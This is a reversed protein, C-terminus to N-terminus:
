AKPTRVEIGIRTIEPHEKRLREELREITRAIENATLGRKFQIDVNVLVEDPGLVMTLPRDVKEVGPEARALQQVARSIDPDSEGVLLSRTEYALFLAVTALVGGILISAIGDYVTNGTIDTLLVGFFAIVLGTMAASDEAIVTYLGPDTSERLAQWFPTRGKQKWLKRLAFALSTGEFLFAAGLVVYAWFASQLAVPHMLHTVGEYVSMGGGFGFLVIAVILGWFYYERGHGYPHKEDPPRSSLHKGLLLLLQDATDITSHIAESLLSSSSTMVAIIFKTITIALNAAIAVYVVVPRESSTRAM